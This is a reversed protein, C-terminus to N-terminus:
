PSNSSIDHGLWPSIPPTLAQLSNPGVHLWLDGEEDVRTQATYGVDILTFSSNPADLHLFSSFAM